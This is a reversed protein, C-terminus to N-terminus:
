RRYIPITTATIRATAYTAHRLMCVCAEFAVSVGGAAVVCASVGAGVGDLGEVESLGSRVESAAGEAFVLAATVDFATEDFAV